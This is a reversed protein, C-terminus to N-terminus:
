VDHQNLTNKKKDGHSVTIIKKKKKSASSISGLGECQAVAEAWKQKKIKLCTRALNGTTSELKCDEQGPSHQSWLCADSHRALQGWKLYSSVSAFFFFFTVAKALIVAQAGLSREKDMHQM